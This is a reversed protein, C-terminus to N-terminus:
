FGVIVIVKRVDYNTSYEEFWASYVEVHERDKTKSWVCVCVCDSKYLLFLTAMKSM